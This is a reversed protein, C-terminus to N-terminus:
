ARHRAMRRHFIPRFTVNRCRAPSAELAEAHAGNYGYYIMLGLTYRAITDYATPHNTGEGDGYLGFRDFRALHFPLHQEWWQPDGGFGARHRLFEGVINIANWNAPFPQKEYSDQYTMAPDLGRLADRWRRLREADANSCLLEDALVLFVTFFDAHNQPTCGLKLRESAWVMAREASVRLDPRGNQVLVAAGLAFCPTSYYWEQPEIPCLVAGNEAQYRRFFDVIQTITGIYASQHPVIPGRTESETESRERFRQVLDPRPYDHLWNM